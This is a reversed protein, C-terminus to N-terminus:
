VKRKGKPRCGNHPIPTIDTISKVKLGATRLSKVASDRGSGPGKVFVDVERLGLDYAKKGVGIAAQSAAYPTSRRSGKYGATGSSGRTIVNGQIDTLTVLTNNFGSTVYALGETQIITQKKRAM